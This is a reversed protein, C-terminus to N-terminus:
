RRAGVYIRQYFPESLDSITVGHRSGSAHIFKGNGIYIGTHDIYTRSSSFYLRDGTQLDATAIPTGVKAQQAATRPLNIGNSAFVHQVFSSCDIGSRSEGGYVYPTGMWTLATSIFPNNSVYKGDVQQLGTNAFMAAAESGTVVQTQTDVKKQLVDVYKAPLWGTSRDSMLVSYWYGKHGTVALETGIPCVFLVQGNPDANRRIRAGVAKVKVVSATTKANDFTSKTAPQVADENGRLVQIGGGSLGYGGRASLNSPGRRTEQPRPEPAQPQYLSKPQPVIEATTYNVSGFNASDGSSSNYHTTLSIHLTNGPHLESVAANQQRLDAATVDYGQKAYYNAISEWSEGNRVRYDVRSTLSGRTQIQRAPAPQEYAVAHSTAKPASADPVRILMAPLAANDRYNIQNANRLDDASVHFKIALQALTQGAVVNQYLDAHAVGSLFVLACCAGSAAKLTQQWKHKRKM